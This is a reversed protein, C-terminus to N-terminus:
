AYQNSLPNTEVRETNERTIESNNNLASVLNEMGEKTKITTEEGGPKAGTKLQPGSGEGGGFGAKKLLGKFLDKVVNKVYKRAKTIEDSVGKAVDVATNLVGKEEIDKFTKQLKDFIAKTKEPFIFSAVLAAEGAYGLFKFFRRMGIRKFEKSGTFKSMSKADKGKFLAGIKSVIAHAGVASAIGLIAQLITRLIIPNRTLWALGKTLLEVATSLPGELLDYIKALM